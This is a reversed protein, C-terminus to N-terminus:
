PQKTGHGHHTSMYRERGDTADFRLVTVLSEIVGVDIRPDLSDALTSSDIILLPEDARSASYLVRDGSTTVHEIDHPPPDIADISRHHEVAVPVAVPEAPDHEIAAHRTAQQEVALDYFRDVLGASADGLLTGLRWGLNQWTLQKLSERTYIRGRAAHDWGQRFKSRRLQDANPDRSRADRNAELVPDGTATSESGHNTSM